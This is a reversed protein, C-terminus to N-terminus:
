GRRRRLRWIAALYAVVTRGLRVTSKRGRERTEVWAVPVEVIPVGARQARVLLETDFFFGTDRIQPLLIRAARQTVAKFGCQADRVGLHLIGRTLGNYVASMVSRLWSREIIADPLFRSGIAIGDAKKAAELLRPLAALDAALDVDMYAFIDASSEGWIKQLAGGRGPVPIVVARVRPLEHALIGAIPATADHSGNDAIVIHWDFASLQAVCFAHLTRVNKELVREENYAPLVILASTM